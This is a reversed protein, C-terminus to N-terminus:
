VNIQAGKKINDVAWLPQLNTYHFCTRQDYEKSLDFASCPIIHDIHWGDNGHNEWTMGDQFLSEMHHRFAVLSCGVLEITHAVKKNKFLAIRLRSRLSKMIRYDPDTRHRRACYATSLCKLEEKRLSRYIAMRADISARNKRAYEANRKLIVDKNCRYREKGKASLEEKNREGYEKSYQNLSVRHKARYAANMVSQCKRCYSNRGRRGTNSRRRSFAEDALVKKCISCTLTM